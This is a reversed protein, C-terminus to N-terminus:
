PYRQAPPYIAADVLARDGVPEDLVVKLRWARGVCEGGRPPAASAVIAITDETYALDFETNDQTLERDGTCAPEEVMLVLETDGPSPEEALKWTAPSRNGLAVRPQCDGWGVPKWTGGAREFAASMFTGGSTEGVLDVRAESESAVRWGEARKLSMGDVTEMVERLARGLESDENELDGPEELVAPPFPAVQGCTYLYSAADSANPSPAAAGPADPAPAGCGVLLAAISMSVLPLKM